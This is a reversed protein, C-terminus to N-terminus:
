YFFTHPLKRGAYGPRPRFLRRQDRHCPLLAAPTVPHALASVAQVGQTSPMPPLTSAVMTHEREHRDVVSLARAFFAYSRSWPPPPRPTAPKRLGRGCSYRYTLDLLSTTLCVLPAGAPRVLVPQRPLPQNGGRCFPGMVMGTSVDKKLWFVSKQCSPPTYKIPSICEIEHM